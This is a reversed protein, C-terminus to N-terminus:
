LWSNTDEFVRWDNVQITVRDRYIDLHIVDGPRSQIDTVIRGLYDEGRYIRVVLYQDEGSPLLGQRDTRIVHNEALETFEAYVEADEGRPNFDIDMESKTGEVVLWVSEEHGPMFYEPVNHIAATFQAICDRMGVRYASEGTLSTEEHTMTGLYLLGTSRYLSGRTTPSMTLLEGTKSRDESVSPIEGVFDENSPIAWAVIDIEGTVEKRILYEQGGSISAYPIVGVSQLINNRYIRLHVDNGIQNDFGEVSEDYLFSLRIYGTCDSVEDKLCSTCLLATLLVLVSQKV